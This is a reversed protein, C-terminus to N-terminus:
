RWVLTEVGRDGKAILEPPELRHEHAMAKAAAFQAYFARKPLICHIISHSGPRTVLVHRNAHATGRRARAAARGSASAATGLLRGCSGVEPKSAQRM